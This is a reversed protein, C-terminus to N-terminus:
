ATEQTTAPAKISTYVVLDTKKDQKRKNLCKRAFFDFSTQHAQIMETLRETQGDFYMLYPVDEKITDQGQKKHRIKCFKLATM